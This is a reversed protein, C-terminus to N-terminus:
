VTSFLSFIDGTSRSKKVGKELRSVIEKDLFRGALNLNNLRLIWLM